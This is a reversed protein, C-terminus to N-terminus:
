ADFAALLGDSTGPRPVAPSSAARAKRQVLTVQLSFAEQWKLRKKAAYLAETSEPRHVARLAADYDILSHKGRLDQPLPDAPPELVDLAVRVCRAITWTPVKGAARYVPILAGAFEEIMDGAEEDDPDALMRFDPGNLQRRGRFDTVKGSFLGWRGAKLYRSQWPQNFFTLTLTRGDDDSVVVELMSGRRSRMPKNMVSRVQALVTAQEGLELSDLDTREGRQAYRFPYHHILDGVTAMDLHGALATATKAGVVASLKTDLTAM